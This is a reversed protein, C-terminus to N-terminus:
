EAGGPFRGEAQIVKQSIWSLDSEDIGTERALGSLTIWEGEHWAIACELIHRLEGEQGALVSKIEDRVPLRPLLDSLPQDLLADLLSLMGVLLANGERKHSGVVSALEACFVGRAAAMTALSGRKGNGLAALIFFSAYQRLEKLGMHELVERISALPLLGARHSNLFQLLRSSLYRDSDLLSVIQRMSMLRNNLECLLRVYHLDAESIERKEHVSPQTFFSGMCHTYGMKVARHFADHTQVNEGLLFLVDDPINDSISEREKGNIRRFDVLIADAVELLSDGNSLDWDFFALLYGQDKLTRYAELLGEDSAHQASSAVIFSEKPLFEVRQQLLSEPTVRVLAMKGQALSQMEHLFDKEAHESQLSKLINDLGSRFRLEHACVCQDADLIPQRSVFVDM